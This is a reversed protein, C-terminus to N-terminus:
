KISYLGVHNGETDEFIAYFGSGDGLKTKPQIIHGNAEPINELIDALDEGASLYVITGTHGPQRFPNEAIAGGIGGRDNDFPLLGIRDHDMIQVPMKYDFIHSYFERAREFDTVPIEFWSLASLPM